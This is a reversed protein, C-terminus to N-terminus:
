VSALDDELEKAPSHPQYLENPLADPLLAQSPLGIRRRNSRDNATGSGAEPFHVAASAQLEHRRGRGQKAPQSTLPTTAM